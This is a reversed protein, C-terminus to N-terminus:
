EKLWKKAQKTLNTSQYNGNWVTDHMLRQKSGPNVNMRHVDLADDAMAAHCSSHNFVWAHRLGESKPYKIKAIAAAREMQTIFKGQMWYGEKNEGYELFQRAYPKISPWTTKAEQYESM